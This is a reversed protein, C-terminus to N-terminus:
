SFVDELANRKETDLIHAYKVTTKIDAHGLVQQTLKLNGTKKLLWTACTHRLTHFNTYPINADNLATRWSRKIDKIRQGKYTFVYDSSRPLELLIEKLKDIMPISLNKGGDKNKDKVKINITNNKFDINEWKLNLINGKRMGTYLAIYIIPKLHEQAKDIIKQATEWDDLYKINEAKEKLKFRSIKIKPTEYGWLECKNIISSLVMLERNITANAVYRKREDVMQTIVQPTIDTLYTVNIQRKLQNLGQLVAIPRSLYQAHRKYFIVCAEDFTLKPL